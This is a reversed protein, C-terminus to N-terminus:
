IRPFFLPNVQTAVLQWLGLMIAVSLVYPLVSDVFRARTM